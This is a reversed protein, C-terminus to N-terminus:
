EESELSVFYGLTQRMAFVEDYIVLDKSKEKANLEYIFPSTPVDRGNFTYSQMVFVEQEARTVAVYFINREEAYNQQQYVRVQGEFVPPVPCPMRTVNVFVKPRELGKSKHVTMILAVDKENLGDSFDMEELVDLFEEVTQGEKVFGKLIEFEELGSSEGLDDSSNLGDEHLLYPVLSHDLIYDICELADDHFQEIEEVFDVLDEAGYSYMIREGSRTTHGVQGKIGWWSGAKEVSKKGYYRSYARDVGKRLVIPCGCNVWPRTEECNEDHARRNIPSKFQDSAINAVASLIDIDNRAGHYNVALKLYASLRQINKSEYLSGGSVNLCPVGMMSLHTHLKECESNTRSLIFCEEPHDGIRKAIEESMEVFDEVDIIEIEKGNEAEKRPEVEMLYQERGRYNLAIVKNSKEIIERTSRYNIPLSRLEYENWFKGFSEEMISPVAGRWQYISQRPDGVFLINRHKQAMIFLIASQTISTDQAEDVIIYDFMAQARVRVSEDEELMTLWDITMMNFDLLSHRNMYWLYKSYIEQLIEPADPPVGIGAELHPSIFDAFAYPKIRNGIGMAVCHLANKYSLQSWNNQDLIDNVFDKIDFTNKTSPVRRRDGFEKLLRYCAAHITTCWSTLFEFVKKGEDDLSIFPMMDIDDLAKEHQENWGKITEKGIRVQWERSAKRTFTVALIRTPDVGANIMGAITEKTTTTKGSGAAANLVTIGEGKKDVIYQQHNNLKM